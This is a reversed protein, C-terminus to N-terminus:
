AAKKFEFLVAQEVAEKPLEYWRAVAEISGEAKVADALVATQVGGEVVIPQGFQRLPDVIVFPLTSPEPRWRAAQGENDFEVGALLSPLIVDYIGFQNREIDYLTKEERGEHELEAFVRKGDTHFKQTSFPHAAGVLATALKAAQRIKRLSLGAEVFADVFRIEMLDLFGLAVAGDEQPLQAHWVPASRRRDAGRQYEYGRLWRRIRSPSVRTLRSAQPVSYIGIGIVDIKPTVM